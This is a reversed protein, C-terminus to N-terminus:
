MKTRGQAESHRRYKNKEEIAKTRYIERIDAKPDRCLFVKIGYERFYKNSVTGTEEINLFLDKFGNIDRNIYIIPGAPISDPAWFVYSELFTVADPLNYEKGYFHIAGAYGYNREAYITCKNQEEPSLQNYATSVIGTLERWGTMDSFIQSADHLKGDEWRYFPPNLVHATKQAYQNLKEYSLIPLSFPLLLLAISTAAILFAINLSTLKDKFYKEIIYGGYAYLFPIIGLIYYAKGNSLFFLFLIILSAIGLYQYKRENKLFLMALLGTLWIILFASTLSALDLFFFTYNLNVLQTKKLESMHKIVPWGHSYQWILNPIFILFALAISYYFYHFHYFRRKKSILIAIFFGASFFIVSYKNLLAIGTLIGITMWTKPKSEEVM